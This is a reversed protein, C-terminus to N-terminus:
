IKTIVDYIVDNPIVIYIVDNKHRGIAPEKQLKSKTSDTQCKSM